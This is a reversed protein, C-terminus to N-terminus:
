LDENRSKEFAKGGHDIDGKEQEEKKVDITYCAYEEESCIVGHMKAMEAVGEEGEESDDGEFVPGVHHIELDVARVDILSVVEGGRVKDGVIRRQFGLSLGNESDDVEDAKDEKAGHDHQIEDDAHDDVAHIVGADIGFDLGDFSGFGSQFVGVIGQAELILNGGEGIM